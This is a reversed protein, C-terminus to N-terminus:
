PVNRFSWYAKARDAGSANLSDRTQQSVGWSWGLSVVWVCTSECKNLDIFISDFANKLAYKVTELATHAEDAGWHCLDLASCRPPLTPPELHQSTHQIM